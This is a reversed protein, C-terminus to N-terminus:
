SGRVHCSFHPGVINLASIKPFSTKLLLDHMNTIFAIIQSVTRSVAHLYNQTRLLMSKVESHAIISAVQVKVTQGVNSLLKSLAKLSEQVSLKQLVLFQYSLHRRYVSLVDKANEFSKVKESLTALFSNFSFVLASLFLWCM